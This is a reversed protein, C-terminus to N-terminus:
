VNKKTLFKIWCKVMAVNTAADAEVASYHGHDASEFRVDCAEKRINLEYPAIESISVDQVWEGLRLGAFLDCAFYAVLAATLTNSGRRSAAVEQRGARNGATPSIKAVNKNTTGPISQHIDVANYKRTALISPFISSCHHIAQNHGISHYPV